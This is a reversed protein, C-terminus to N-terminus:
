CFPTRHAQEDCRQGVIGFGFVNSLLSLLFSASEQLAQFISNNQSESCAIDGTFHM